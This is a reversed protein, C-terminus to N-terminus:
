LEQKIYPLEMPSGFPSRSKINLFLIVQFSLTSIGDEHSAYSPALEAKWTFREIGQDRFKKPILRSFLEAFPPLRLPKRKPRCQYLPSDAENELIWAIRPHLLHIRRHFSSLKAPESSPICTGPPFSLWRASSSYSLSSSPYYQGHQSDTAWRNVPVDVIFCALMIAMNSILM